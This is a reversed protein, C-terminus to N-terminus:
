KIDFYGGATRGFNEPFYMESVVAPLHTFRGKILARTYYDFEYVGPAVNDRYLFARDNRLEKFDPNFDRAQSIPDQLLLSKQETALDLNVIEMGAPIFDEIGVFNRSKSVTVTLHERLVDGVKAEKLPNQNKLDSVAYFERTISFGEDRPAIQDQPLYYKLSMDYYFNNPLDNKNEKAFQVTNNENFKLDSLSFQKTLQDLITNKGFHYSSENKGNIALNLVFDSETERKWSLYDTMADVATITNNTSGWAGDKARSAMLWRLVKDTIPNSSRNAVLAKLYLATNKVPTEYYYWLFNKNTELFSGRSDIKIRNDLTDLIKKKLPDKNIGLVDNGFNGGAMIGLYALSTNSIKEDIFFDDNALANIQENLINDNKYRPDDLSFLVYATLILNNRDQYYNPDATIKGYLYNASRALSNENIQYGAKKLNNLTEVSQLTTYFNSDGYDQWLAFGGDSRQNNYLKALGIDVLQDVTYQQDDYAIKGLNFKDAMNPLNLGRKIVAIANLKSSVQEACGYPYELLYRLADSLFVALTASSKVTLSGKDKIINDPLFVYEHAVPSGTYDATATAEYTDNRTIGISQEVSDQVGQGKASLTFIHTGSEISAPAEVNYYVTASQDPEITIKKDAQDNKIGLTNSSYAVSVDQRQSTQNFIQAGVAFEDGPVIFRPKLPVVMLQKKTTFELYNVGLKTDKTIGLTEAQWTTLNDPLVFKVTAHGNQDTRIVAQWFANEKFVGRKKNELAGDAGGGGGKTEVINSEVLINKINSYTSVTLPFGGYFFAIPNKKPNGQLALVSLDVVAASVESEVPKGQFDSTAIDLIVQEGPLYFKKDSRVDINLKQRDTDVTFEKQGFKIEPKSSVLLVSVYFNPSYGDLVDFSYSYINGQIEKIEYSFIKGREIAILAKARPYPSKIIIEGKDGVNLATKKVDLELDTGETPQISVEKEGYVYATFVSTISNGRSDQAAIEVEYEGEEAFSVDKSYNGKEDTDFQFKGVEKRQKEWNSAYGGTAEQRKNYVWNIQYLSGTINKVGIPKGQIDVSKIKLNINKAL